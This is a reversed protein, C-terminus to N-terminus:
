IKKYHNFTEYEKPLTKLKLLNLTLLVHKTTIKLELNLRHMLQNLVHSTLNTYTTLL